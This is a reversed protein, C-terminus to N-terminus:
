KQEFSSKTFTIQVQYLYPRILEVQRKAYDVSFRNDSMVVQWHVSDGGAAARLVVQLIFLFLLYSTIRPAATPHLRDAGSLSTTASDLSLTSPKTEFATSTWFM